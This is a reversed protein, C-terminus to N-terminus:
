WTTGPYDVDLRRLLAAFSRPRIPWGLATVDNTSKVRTVSAAAQGGAVRGAAPEWSPIPPM